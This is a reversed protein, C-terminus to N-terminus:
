DMYSGWPILVEERFTDGDIHINLSIRCDRTNANIDIHVNTVDRVERVSLAENRVIRRIRMINPNKVFVEEFYPVGKDPAFRWEQFFWLLRIRVAQRISETLTIDGWDNIDLDGDRTLLIDLL